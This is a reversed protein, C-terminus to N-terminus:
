SPYVAMLGGLKKYVVQWYGHPRYDNEVWLALGSPGGGRAKLWRWWRGPEYVMRKGRPVVEGSRADLVVLTPLTM